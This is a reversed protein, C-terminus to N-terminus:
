LQLLHRFRGRVAPFLVGEPLITRRNGQLYLQSVLLFQAPTLEEWKQPVRRIIEHRIGFRRYAIRLERMDLFTRKHDNDRDYIQRPDGWLFEWFLETGYAAARDHVHGCGNESEPDTRSHARISPDRRRMARRVRSYLPSTCGRDTVSGTEMLLRRVAMAVIYRSCALRLREMSKRAEEDEPSKGTRWDSAWVAQWRHGASPADGRCVEPAAASPPFCDPQWQYVSTM